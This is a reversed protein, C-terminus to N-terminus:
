SFQGSLPAQTGREGEMPGRAVQAGNGDARAVSLITVRERGPGGWFILGAM